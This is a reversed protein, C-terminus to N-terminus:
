RFQEAKVETESILRWIIRNRKRTEDTVGYEWKSINKTKTKKKKQILDTYFKM